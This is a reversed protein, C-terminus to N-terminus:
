ADAVRPPVGRMLEVRVGDPDMLFVIDTGPNSRTQDLVFAGYELMREAARDVDDVYFCLHTIGVQNRQKSPAGVVPPSQFHLLEIRLNGHNIMQSTLVVDPRVELSQELGPLTAGDLEYRDGVEFGLGDCYFRLSRELNTVCIGIHSPIFGAVAMLAAGPGSRLRGVDRAADRIRDNMARTTANLETVEVITGGIGLDLYAFRAAGGGDGSQVVQWGAEAARAMVEDFDEVWFAVHHIGEHGADLFERYVSPRDDHPQILEIQLEGSNAWAISLVPDSRAGHFYMASQETTRMVFWPGVGANTWKGIAHDLDRVVYGNQGVAGPLIGNM